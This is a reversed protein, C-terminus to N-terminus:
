LVNALEVVYAPCVPKGGFRRALPGMDTGTDAGMIFEDAGKDKAWRLATATMELLERAANGKSFIPMFSGRRRKPNYPLRSVAAILVAKEGRLCLCAPNGILSLLWGSAAAPEFTGREYSRAAVELMWPVDAVTCPRPKM